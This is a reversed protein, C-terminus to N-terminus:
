RDNLIPEWSAAEPEDAPHTLVMWRRACLHNVEPPIPCLIGKIGDIVRQLEARSRVEVAAEVVFLKKKGLPVRFARELSLIARAREAAAKKTRKPEM